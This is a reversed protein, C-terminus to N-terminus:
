QVVVTGVMNPHLTCHYTFTGKNSFAFSFQANPGLTGGFAGSDSTATHTTSDKNTWTVTDGATVTVSIPVFQFNQITVNSTAAYAAIPLAVVLISATLAATWAVAPRVLRM